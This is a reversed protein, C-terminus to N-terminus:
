NFAFVFKFMINIPYWCLIRFFFQSVIPVLSRDEMYEKLTQSRRSERTMETKFLDDYSLHNYGYKKVIKECQTEKGSGPGGLIFIVCIHITTINRRQFLM